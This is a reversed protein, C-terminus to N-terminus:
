AMTRARRVRTVLVLGALGTALLAYTSPEPVVGQLQISPMVFNQYGDGTGFLGGDLVRFRGGVDFPASNAAPGPDFRYFTTLFRGANPSAGWGDPTGASIAFGIDYTQGALFDFLIPVEYYGMGVDTHARTWQGLIGGRAPYPNGPTGPTAQRITVQLTFSPATIPDFRIGASGVQTNTLSTFAVSREGTGDVSRFDFPAVGPPIFQWTQAHLAPTAVLVAAILPRALRALRM